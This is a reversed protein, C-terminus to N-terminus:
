EVVLYYKGGDIQERTDPYRQALEVLSIIRYQGDERHTFQLRAGNRTLARLLDGVGDANIAAFARRQVPQNPYKFEVRWPKGQRSPQEDLLKLLDMAAHSLVYGTSNSPADAYNGVAQRLADRAQKTTTM